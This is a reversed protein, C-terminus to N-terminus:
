RSSAPPPISYHLFFPDTEYHNLLVYTILLVVRHSDAQTIPFFPIFQSLTMPSHLPSPRLILVRYDSKGGLQRCKPKLGRLDNGGLM